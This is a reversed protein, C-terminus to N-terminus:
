HYDNEYAPIWNEFYFTVVTNNPHYTLTFRINETKYLQCLREIREKTLKLGYGQGHTNPNNKKNGNDTVTIMLDTDRKRFSIDIQGDKRKGSIGHKIANEVVPQLLMPPFEIGDLDLTPDIDIIWKFEFRLQEVRLYKELTDLDQAMSILPERSNKLTDRMIDSFSSLYENARDNEHNSVLGEISSLANFVFHPNLQTQVTTLQEELRKRKNLERQLRYRYIQNPGAILLTIGLFILLFMGLPSQYWYALTQLHYTNTLQMDQYRIELIYKNNSELSDLSLLHGTLLWEPRAIDSSEFVRFLICSDMNWDSKRILLDLKKGASLLISKRTISDFGKWQKKPDNATLSKIKNDISDATEKQRYAEIVPLLEPRYFIFQQIMQRSSKYRFRLIASDAYALSLDALLRGFPFKKQTMEVPTVPLWQPNRHREDTLSYEIKSYDKEPLPKGLTIYQDSPMTRNRPSLAIQIRGSLTALHGAASVPSSYVGTKAIFPVEGIYTITSLPTMQGITNLVLIILCTTHFIRKKLGSILLHIYM